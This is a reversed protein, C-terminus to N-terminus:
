YVVCFNFLNIMQEEKIIFSVVKRQRDIYNCYKSKFYIFGEACLSRAGSEAEAKSSSGREFVVEWSECSIKKCGCSSESLKWDVCGCEASM